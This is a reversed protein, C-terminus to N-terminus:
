YTISFNLNSDTIEIVIKTPRDANIANLTNVEALVNDSMKRRILIKQNGWGGIVTLFYAIIQHIFSFISCKPLYKCFEYVNDGKQPRDNESLLIHADRGGQVYLSIRVKYGNPKYDPIQNLPFYDM